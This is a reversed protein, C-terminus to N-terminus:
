DTSFLSHHNIFVTSLQYSPLSESLDDIKMNRLVLFDCNGLKVEKEVNKRHSAIYHICSVRGYHVSVRIMWVQDWM